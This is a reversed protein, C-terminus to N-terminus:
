HASSTSRRINWFSSRIERVMGMLFGHWSDGTLDISRKLVFPILVAVVVLTSLAAGELGRICSLVACGMVALGTAILYRLALGQHRNCAVHVVSSTFWLANFPIPLLFLLLLHQPLDIAKRTWWGYLTHGFLTLGIVSVCAAAFSIGVGARHLRAARVLEGAGLLHSMEPWIIQNILDMLQTVSRVLTRATGFLAVAAPGLIGQVILLNGQFLLANGLPFAQYAIGKQFLERYRSPRIDALSFALDPM